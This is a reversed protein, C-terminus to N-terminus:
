QWCWLAALMLAQQLVRFVVAQCMGKRAVVVEM